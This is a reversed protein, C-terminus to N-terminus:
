RGMEVAGACYRELLELRKGMQQRRQEVTAAQQAARLFQLDMALLKLQKDIEVNLSRLRQVMEGAEDGDEGDGGPLIEVQFARHLEAIAHGVDPGADRPGPDALAAQVQVVHAGFAEYRQRYVESIM